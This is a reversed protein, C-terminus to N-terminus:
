LLKIMHGHTAYCFRVYYIAFLEKISTPKYLKPVSFYATIIIVFLFVFLSYFIIQLEYWYIM